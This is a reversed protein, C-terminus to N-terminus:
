LQEVLDALEELLDAAAQRHSPELGAFLAEVRASLLTRKEDLLGKGRETLEVTIARRDRPDRDRALLGREQLRSLAQTLTAGSVDAVEAIRAHGSSGAHEVADLLIFQAMTLGSFAPDRAVRARAVRAARLFRMLGEEFRRAETPGAEPERREPGPRSQASGECNGDEVSM